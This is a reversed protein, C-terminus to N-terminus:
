LYDLFRLYPPTLLMIALACAAGQVRLDPPPVITSRRRVRADILACVTCGVVIVLAALLLDPGPHPSGAAILSAPVVVAFAVMAGLMWRGGSIALAGPRQDRAVTMAFPAALAAVFPALLPHQGRWPAGLPELTSLSNEVLVLAIAVVSVYFVGRAQHGGPPLKAGRHRIATVVLYGVLALLPAPTWAPNGLSYTAYLVLHAAVAGAFSLFRNWRSLFLVVLLLAVQVTLQAGIWQWDHATMKVLLYYVALPVIVNDTGREAILELCTAILALQMAILLSDVRGIDTLLLLPVHVGLFTTLLFATSGELSKRGSGAAVQHLGYRQGLLAALTDSVVLASLAVLYFVPEAHAVLFLLYVGVPFWREGSSDREVDLVARMWGRRRALSFLGILTGGLLLLTWHTGILWPFFASLVGSSVHVFKRTWETPPDGWRRWLEAIGLLSLFGAGVGIAALTERTISTFVAPPPLTIM